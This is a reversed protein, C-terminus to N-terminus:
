LCPSGGFVRQSMVMVDGTSNVTGNRDLDYDLTTGAYHFVANTMALFDGSSNVNGNGDLDLAEKCDGRGDGDSDVLTHNTGWGRREWGNLLGDGDTDAGDDGLAGPKSLRDRPNSGRLCEYGDLVGDNDTDWSAGNDGADTGMTPAPDGNGDDDNTNDGFAPNAHSAPIGNFTGCNALPNEDVDALGDNDRDADCLDGLADGNPVTDDVATVGPGNDITGLYGFVPPDSGTDSNEQEPNFVSSCNDGVTVCDSDPDNLCPDQSDGIGNRNDDPDVADDIGDGELDVGSATLLDIADVNDNGSPSYPNCLGYSRTTCLGLQEASLYAAVTSGSQKVWLDGETGAGTLGCGQQLPLAGALSPSDATLSFVVIDNASGALTLSSGTHYVALADVDDGSQLGLDTASAYVSVAGAGPKVSIVASGPESFFINGEPAGDLDSDVVISDSMDLFALDDRGATGPPGSPSEDLGMGPAELRAPGGSGGLVGDGDILLRNPQGGCAAAAGGLAPIAVANAFVDAGAAGDLGLAESAVDYTALPYGAANGDVSFTVFTD